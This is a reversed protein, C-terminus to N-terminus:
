PLKDHHQEHHDRSCPPAALFLLKAEPLLLKLLGNCLTIYLGQTTYCSSQGMRLRAPLPCPAQSFLPTLRTSALRAQIRGFVCTGGPYAWEEFISARGEAHPRPATLFTFNSTGPYRPCVCHTQHEPKVECPTGQIRERDGQLSLKCRVNGFVFAAWCLQRERSVTCQHSCHQHKGCTDPM